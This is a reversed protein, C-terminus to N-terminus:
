HKISIISPISKKGINTFLSIIMFYIGMLTLGALFSKFEPLSTFLNMGLFVGTLLLLLPIGYLLFSANVLANGKVSILVMDGPKVGLSDSAIIKRKDDDGPKCFLKASCGECGKKENLQLEANGVSVKVVVAEEIIEEVYM